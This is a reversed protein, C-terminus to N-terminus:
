MKYGLSKLEDQITKNKRFGIIWDRYDYFPHIGGYKQPLNKPDVHKHLSEMDTGHFYLREIMRGSLLPKFVNFFMELAWSNNVIHMAQLKM